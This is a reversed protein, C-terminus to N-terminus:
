LRHSSNLRTSKRDGDWSIETLAVGSLNDQAALSVQAGLAVYTLRDGRMSREEPMKAETVPAGLDVFVELYQLPSWTNVPNVARFKLTHKGEQSFRIAAQYPVFEASDVSVEIRDIPGGADARKLLFQAQGGVFYKGSAPDFVLQSPESPQAAHTPRALTAGLAVALFMVVSFSAKM